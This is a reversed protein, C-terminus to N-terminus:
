WLGPIPSDFSIVKFGPLPPLKIGPYLRQLSAQLNKMGPLQLEFDQFLSDQLIAEVEERPLPFVDGLTGELDIALQEGARIAIPTPLTEADPLSEQEETLIPIINVEGNLVKIQSEGRDSVELLYFTGQVGVEFTATCGSAPGSALLIGRRVEICQGIIVSSQSALRGAAGNDFELGALSEQTRVEQQFRAVDDIQARTEDIFVRDGNLIERVTARSVQGRVRTPYFAIAISVCVGWLIWGPINFGLANQWDRNIHGM